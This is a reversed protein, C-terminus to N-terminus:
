NLGANNQNFSKREELQKVCDQCVQFYGQCIEDYKKCILSFSDLLKLYEAAYSDCLEKYDINIEKVNTKTRKLWIVEAAFMAIVFYLISCTFDGYVLRVVSAIFSIIAVAYDVISNLKQM